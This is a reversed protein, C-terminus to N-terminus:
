VGMNNKGRVIKVFLPTRKANYLKKFILQFGGTNQLTKLYGEPRCYDVALVTFVM